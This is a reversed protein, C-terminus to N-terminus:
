KVFKTNAIKDSDVTVTNLGQSTSKEVTFQTGDASHSLCLGFEAFYSILKDQLYRSSEGEGITFYQGGCGDHFHLIVSYRELIEKKIKSIENISLVM